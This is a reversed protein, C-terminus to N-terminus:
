VEGLAAEGPPIGQEDEHEPRQHDRAHHEQDGVVQDQAYRQEAAIVDQPLPIPQSSEYQPSIRGEATLTQPMKKKRWYMFVMGSSMISAARM